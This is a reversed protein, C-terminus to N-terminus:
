FVKVVMWLLGVFVCLSRLLWGSCGLSWEVM